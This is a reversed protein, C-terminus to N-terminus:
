RAGIRAVVKFLREDVADEVAVEEEHGSENESESDSVDGVNTTHRQTTEMDMLRAHIDRMEREMAPNPVQRGRGRPM